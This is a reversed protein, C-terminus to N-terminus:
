SRVVGWAHNKFRSLTDKGDGAVGLDLFSAECFAEFGARKKKKARRAFLKETTIESRERVGLVRGKSTGRCPCTSEGGLLLSLSRPKVAADCQWKGGAAARHHRQLRECAGNPCTPLSLQEPNFHHSGVGM